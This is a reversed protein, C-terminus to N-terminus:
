MTHNVTVSSGPTSDMAADIAGWGRVGQGQIAQQVKCLCEKLRGEGFRDRIAHLHNIIADPPQFGVLHQASCYEGVANMLPEELQFFAVEEDTDFQELTGYGKPPRGWFSSLM